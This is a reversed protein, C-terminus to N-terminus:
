RLTKLFEIYKPPIDILEIGMGNKINQFQTKVTRKVKGHLNIGEGSPLYLKLELITGPTLGKKTRVFIGQKSLNSTIGTYSIGGSIFKAELRKIIRKSRRKQM